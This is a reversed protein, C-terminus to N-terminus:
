DGVVGLAGPFAVAITDVAGVRWVWWNVREQLDKEAWAKTGPVDGANLAWAVADFTKGFASDAAGLQHTRKKLGLPDTGWLIDLAPDIIQVVRGLTKALDADTIVTKPLTLLSM